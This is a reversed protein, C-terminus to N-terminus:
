RVADAAWGDYRGGQAVALATFRQSLERMDPVSLRMSKRAHLSFPHDVNEPVAKINVTYGEAELLANIARM